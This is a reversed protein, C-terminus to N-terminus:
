AFFFSLFVAAFPQSKERKAKALLPPQLPGALQAIKPIRM